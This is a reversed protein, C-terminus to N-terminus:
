GVKQKLVEAAWAADEGELAPMCPKRYNTADYRGNVYVEDALPQLDLRVDKDTARLPIPIAPLRDRLPMRYLAIEGSIRWLIARYATEVSPPAVVPALLERWSGARILDIEVVHIRAARLELRKTRYEERGPGALKDAPSLFDIVTVIQGDRSSIIIYPETHTEQEYQLIVPEVTTAAEATATGGGGQRTDFVGVDPYITRPKEYEISDVVLREEMRAVLDDPLVRNLNRRALGALDQHVDRWYFELYPDM